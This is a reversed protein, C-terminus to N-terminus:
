VYMIGGNIKKIRNSDAKCIENSDFEFDGNINLGSLMIVKIPFDEHEEGIRIIKAHDGEKVLGDDEFDPLVEVIDGAKFNSM